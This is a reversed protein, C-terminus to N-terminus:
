HTPLIQCCRSGACCALSCRIVRLIGDSMFTGTQDHGGYIDYNLGRFLIKQGLIVSTQILTEDFLPVRASYWRTNANGKGKHYIRM